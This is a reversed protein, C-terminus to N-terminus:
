AAVQAAKDLEARAADTVIWVTAPSGASTARTFDAAEVWGGARLESIRTSASIGPVAVAVGAEEYTLGRPARAIADLIRHRQRGAQPFARRAAAKAPDPDGKRAKTAPDPSADLSALSLQDRSQGCHPCVNV